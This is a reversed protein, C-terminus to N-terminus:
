GLSSGLHCASKKSHLLDAKASMTCLALIHTPYRAQLATHSCAAQQAALHRAQLQQKSHAAAKQLESVRRVGEEAQVAVNWTLAAM